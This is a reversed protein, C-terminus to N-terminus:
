CEVLDFGRRLVLLENLSAVLAAVKETAVSWVLDDDVSAYAHILVNRFAVIRVLDANEPLGQNRVHLQGPSRRHDRVASLPPACCLTPRTNRARVRGNVFFGVQEAARRVDWLYTRPDPM